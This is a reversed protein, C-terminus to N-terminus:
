GSTTQTLNATHSEMEQKMEKEFDDQVSQFDEHEEDSSSDCDLQDCYRLGSM